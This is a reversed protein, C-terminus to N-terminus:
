IYSKSCLVDQGNSYILTSGLMGLSANFAFITLTLALNKPDLTEAPELFIEEIWRRLRAKEERDEELSELNPM